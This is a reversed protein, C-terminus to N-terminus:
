WDRGSKTVVYLEGDRLAQISM